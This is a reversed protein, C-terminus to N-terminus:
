LRRIGIARHKGAKPDSAFHVVTSASRDDRSTEIRVITYRDPDGGRPVRYICTRGGTAGARREALQAGQRDFVTLRYRTAEARAFAHQVALDDFCLADDDHTFNELPAVQEFWYRATARQRAVLANVMYAAARPDSFRATAVAAQLQERTLRILIKSAWYSDFRDRMHFPTYAPTNAKFITPDFTDVDYLGIGRLGPVQRDEWSRKRLGLTAFNKVIESWDLHYVHDDRMDRHGAAMVGLAKGFDILYHKVHHTRTEPDVVWADLSNHEKVDLHALWAFVAHSGRLDRRLEHPIRDNPDDHRVGENRHGGLPTGKVFMSALGRIRGDREVEIKTDLIEALQEATLEREHGTTDKQVSKADLKLDGRKFYVVHDEPVNYGFAWLIRGVIVDAATEAEPNGKKDFKLLFKEGRTDTAIFGISAGGVKTSTITWPRHAEPSGVTEPGKRIEETSLARVGLRNTFWSSDPVDDFANVGLARRPAPLEMARTLRRYIGADFHYLLLASTHPAPAAPVDIRDNVRLVPPANAFRVNGVPSTSSACGILGCALVLTRMM